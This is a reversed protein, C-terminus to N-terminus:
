QGKSEHCLTGTGIKGIGTTKANWPVHFGIKVVKLAISVSYSISKEFGHADLCKVRIM